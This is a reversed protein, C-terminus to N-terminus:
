FNTTSISGTPTQQKAQRLFSDTPFNSNFGSFHEDM